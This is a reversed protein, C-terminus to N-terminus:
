GRQRDHQAQTFFADPGFRSVVVRAEDVVAGGEAEGWQALLADLAEGITRGEARRDGAAARFRRGDPAARADQALITIATM